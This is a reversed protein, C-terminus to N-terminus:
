RVGIRISKITFDIENENKLIVEFNNEIVKKLVIESVESLEANDINKFSINKIKNTYIVQYITSKDGLLHKINIKEYDKAGFRLLTKDTKDIYLTDLRFEQKLTNIINVENETETKLLEEFRGLIKEKIENFNYLEKIKASAKELREYDIDRQKTARSQYIETIQEAVARNFPSKSSALERWMFKIVCPVKNKNVICDFILQTIGLIGETEYKKIAQKEILAMYEFIDKKSYSTLTNHRNVLQNIFDQSGAKHGTYDQLLKSFSYVTYEKYQGKQEGSQYKKTTSVETRHETANMDITHRRAKVIDKTFTKGQFDLKKEGKLSQYEELTYSYSSLVQRATRYNNLAENNKEIKLENKDFFVNDEQMIFGESHLVKRVASRFAEYKYGMKVTKPIWCHIHPHTDENLHLSFFAGSLNETKRKYQKTLIYNDSKNDKEFKIEGNKKDIIYNGNKDKEREKKIVFKDTRLDTFEINKIKKYLEYMKKNIIDKDKTGFQIDDLSIIYDKYLKVDLFEDSKSVIKNKIKINKNDYKEVKLYSIKGKELIKMETIENHEVLYDALKGLKKIEKYKKKLSIYHLANARFAIYNNKGM